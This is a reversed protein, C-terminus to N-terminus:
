SKVGKIYDIIECVIDYDKKYISYVGNDFYFEIWDEKYYNTITYYYYTSLLDKILEKQRDTLNM